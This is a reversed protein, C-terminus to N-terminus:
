PSVGEDVPDNLIRALARLLPVAVLAASLAEAAACAWGVATIGGSGTWALAGLLITVTCVIRAVIALRLRRRVRSIGDYLVGVAALPIFLAALRLLDTGQARYQPGVVELLLPAALLLASGAVAAAGVLRVFRITLTRLQETHSAAEAVYPGGLMTITVLIATVLSWSVTFYANAASGLRGLVVLPVILPALANIVVIGYSGLFYAALERLPPLAISRLYRPDSGIRRRVAGALWCVSVAAPAVWCLYLVPGRAGFSFAILLVLKAVAHWTNKAAAWRGVGLGNLLQDFLAFLALFGTGVVFEVATAASPFMARPGLWVLGLALLTALAVVAACGRRVLAGAHTGAGPLFREYMSGLSLNSLTSLLVSSTILAAGVGLERAPYLRAAVAWFGLGLVATAINAGLLALSNVRLNAAAAAPRTALATM